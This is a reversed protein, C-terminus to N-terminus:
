QFFEVIQNRTLKQSNPGIRLFFGDSCAHPKAKSEPITLIMLSEIYEIKVPLQPEIQNISDQLRSRTNNDFKIGKILGADSVGIFIKGGSANAFACVERVISKDISEKFEQHYSEGLQILEQLNM